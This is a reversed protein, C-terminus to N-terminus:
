DKYKEELEKMFKEDKETDTEFEDEWGKANLWTAPYPIYKGDDKKWQQTDKLREIQLIMDDVLEKSPKNRKFWTEVRGKDRKKPYANWFINFLINNNNIDIDIDKEIDIDIDIDQQVRHHVIEVGKGEVKSHCSRCLIYLDDIDNSYQNNHHICLNEESGCIECKGNALDYALMGNGGYRKEDVYVCNGNPLRLMEGNLRKCNILPINNARQKRKKEAWKTESGVLNNHETIKLIGNEEKYILGIQKFLELAMSVTDFDFYKTDRVIKDVDYPIIMENVKTGLMGNNNATKMCLMQYLVIYQCGNKQSLIFDIDDREFFNTNLKIWYYKGDM